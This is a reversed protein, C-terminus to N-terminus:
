LLSKNKIKQTLVPDTVPMRPGFFLSLWPLMLEKNLIGTWPTQETSSKVNLGPETLLVKITLFCVFIFVINCTHACCSKM